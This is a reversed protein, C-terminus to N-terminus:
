IVFGFVKFLVKLGKLEECVILWMIVELLFKLMLVFLSKLYVFKKEM